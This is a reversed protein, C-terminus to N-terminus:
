SKGAGTKEPRAPALHAREIVPLDGGSQCTFQIREGVKLDSATVLKGREIFKTQDSWRFTHDTDDKRETVVLTHAGTDVSKIIGHEVHRRTNAAFGADPYLALGCGAALVVTRLALRLKM